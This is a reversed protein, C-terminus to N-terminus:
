LSNVSQPVQNRVMYGAGAPSGTLVCFLGAAAAERDIGPHADFGGGPCPQLAQQTVAGAWWEGHITAASTFKILPASKPPGPVVSSCGAGIGRNWPQNEDGSTLHTDAPVRISQLATLDAGSTLNVDAAVIHSVGNSSNGRKM